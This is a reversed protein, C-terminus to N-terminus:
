RNLVSLWANLHGTMMLIGMVLLLAGSIRTVVGYHRKIFAFSGKLADLLLASILLPLGLGASYCLLLVAGSAWSNQNAALMLASGLFAGVCPTWGFAFVIGFLAAKLGSRRNPDERLASDEEGTQTAPISTSGRKSSHALSGGGRFFPLQFLGLYSLGFIVVVAGTVLDIGRRWRVLLGGVAGAFIGLAVFVLTFGIIFALASSLTQRRGGREGGFYGFYVPLLPLLCPSIFTLVGELFSLAYSM